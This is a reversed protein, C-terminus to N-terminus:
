CGEVDPVTPRVAGIKHRVRLYSAVGVVMVAVAGAVFLWGLVIVLEAAFLQIAAAGAGLMGLATRGYALLTRENALVTRDLALEDRLPLVPRDPM